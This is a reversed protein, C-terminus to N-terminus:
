LGAKAQKKAVRAAAKEIETSLNDKIYELAAESGSAWAPRMFPQAPTDITGFEVFTAYQLTGQGAAPGMAIAIGTSAAARFKGRVLRTASARARRTRKESVVISFALKGSDTPAKAAASDAMPELAAKAVRRLVSKGTARPLDALARELERFGELKVTM